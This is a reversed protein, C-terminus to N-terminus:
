NSQLYPLYKKTIFDNREASDKNLWTDAQLVAQEWHDRRSLAVKLQFRYALKEKASKTIAQNVQMQASVKFEEVGKYDILCGESVWAHEISPGFFEVFFMRKPRTVGIYKIHTPPLTEISLSVICPWWPHGSVKAWVLDGVNYKFLEENENNVCVNNLSNVPNSKISSSTNLLVYEGDFSKQKRARKERSLSTNIDNKSIKNCDYESADNFNLSKRKLSKLKPNEYTVINTILNLETSTNNSNSTLTVLDENLESDM